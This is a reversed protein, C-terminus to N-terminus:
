VSGVELSIDLAQASHTLRGISIFDVGSEAIERVTEMTIGGSAEILARGGVTAVAARIEEPTMNDLLIIDANGQLAETLQTQNTVEVEIRMTHPSSNRALLVVDAIDTIGRQAAAAIHNDKILVGASLNFRHNHGGGCRVAYRELDRMGPTTKRTDLIKAKTGVVSDCFQRTLTAVGSLRQLFNLAVRETALIASLPGEVEALETGASIREGDEILADFSIQDDFSTMTAAAVPLGSVVGADKAIFVGRGWQDTQVIARTTVDDHAGDEDLASLVLDDIIHPPPLMLGDPM